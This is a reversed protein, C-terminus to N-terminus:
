RISDLFLKLIETCVRAQSSASYFHHGEGPLLHWALEAQEAFSPAFLSKFSQRAKEPSTITDNEGHFALARSVTLPRIGGGLGNWSLLILGGLKDVQTAATVVLAAGYSEGMLFIRESPIKLSAVAYNFVAIVDSASSVPDGSQEYARGYGPSGRYNLALLNCGNKVMVETLSNWVPWTQLRPGGHVLILLTPPNTTDRSAHWHFAFITAGHRPTIELFEPPEYTLQAANPTSYIHHLNTQERSIGSATDESRASLPIECLLPPSELPAFHAFAMKGDSSFHDIRLVGNTPGVVKEQFSPPSCLIATIIGKTTLHCLFSGDEPSWLPHSIDGHAVFPNQSYGTRVDFKMLRYFEDADGRVTALLFEGDPSWALDRIEGGPLIRLDKREMSPLSVLDINGTEISVAALHNGDPSWVFDGNCPISKLAIVPQRARGTDLVMLKGTNWDGQYYALM